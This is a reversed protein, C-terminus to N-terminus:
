KDDVDANATGIEEDEDCYVLVKRRKLRQSIRRVHESVNTKDDIEEEETEESEFDAKRKRARSKTAKIRSSTRIQRNRKVM